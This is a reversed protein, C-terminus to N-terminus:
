LHQVMAGLLFAPSLVQSDRIVVNKNGTLVYGQKVHKQEFIGYKYYETSKHGNLVNSLARCGVGSCLM